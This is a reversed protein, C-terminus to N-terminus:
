QVTSKQRWKAILKPAIKFVVKTFVGALIFAFFALEFFMADFSRMPLINFFDILAYFDDTSLGWFLFEPIYLFFFVFLSLFVAIKKLVLM